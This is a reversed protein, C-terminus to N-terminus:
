VLFYRVAEFIAVVAAAVGGGLVSVSRKTVSQAGQRKAEALRLGDVKEGVEALQVRLAQFNEHDQETHLQWADLSAATNAEISALREEITAM